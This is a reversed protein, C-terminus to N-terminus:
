ASRRELRDLGREVWEPGWREWGAALLAAALDVTEGGLLMLAAREALRESEADSCRAVVRRAAAFLAREERTAPSAAAAAYDFDWGEAASEGEGDCGAAAVGAASAAPVDPWSEPPGIIPPGHRGLRERRELKAREGPSAYRKAREWEAKTPATGSPYEAWRLCRDLNDRERRAKDAVLGIVAGLDPRPGLEALAEDILYERCGEGVAARM